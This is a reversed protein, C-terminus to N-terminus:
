FESQEIYSALQSASIYVNEVCIKQTGKNVNSMHSIAIYRSNCVYSYM